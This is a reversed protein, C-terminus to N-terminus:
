LRHMHWSMKVICLNSQMDCATCTGHCKPMANSECRETSVRCHM